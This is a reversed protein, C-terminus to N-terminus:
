EEAVTEEAKKEESKKEQMRPVLLYHNKNCYHGEKLGWSEFREVKKGHENEAAVKRDIRRGVVYGSDMGCYGACVWAWDVMALVQNSCIVIRGVHMLQKETLSWLWEALHELVGYNRRRDRAQFLFTNQAFFMLETEEHIQRCTETFNLRPALEIDTWIDLHDMHIPRGDLHHM